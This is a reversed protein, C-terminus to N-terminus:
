GYQSKEDDVDDNYDDDDYNIQKDNSKNPHTHM